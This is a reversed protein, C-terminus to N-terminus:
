RSSSPLRADQMIGQFGMLMGAVATQPSHPRCPTGRSFVCFALQLVQFGALQQNIQSLTQLRAQQVSRLVCLQLLGPALLVLLVNLAANYQEVLLHPRLIPRAGKSTLLKLM